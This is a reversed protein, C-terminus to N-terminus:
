PYHHNSFIISPTIKPSNKNRIGNIHMNRSEMYNNVTIRRGLMITACLMLGINGAATCYIQDVSIDAHQVSDESRDFM